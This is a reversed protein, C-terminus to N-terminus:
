IKVKFVKRLVQELFRNFYKRIKRYKFISIIIVMFLLVFIIKLGFAPIPIQNVFLDKYVLHISSGLWNKLLDFLKSGVYMSALYFYGDFKTEILKLKITHEHGMRKQTALRSRKQLFIKEVSYDVLLIFLIAYYVWENSLILMIFLLVFISGAIKFKISKLDKLIYLSFLYTLMCLTILYTFLQYIDQLSGKFNPFFLILPVSSIVLYLSSYIPIVIIRLLLDMEIENTTSVIQCARLFTQIVIVVLIVAVFVLFVICVQKIYRAPIGLNILCNILIKPFFIILCIFSLFFINKLLYMGIMKNQNEKLLKTEEVKLKEIYTQM